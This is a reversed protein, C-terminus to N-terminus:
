DRSFMQKLHAFLPKIKERAIVAKASQNEPAVLEQLKQIRTKDENMLIDKQNHNDIQGM